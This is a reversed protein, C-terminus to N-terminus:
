FPPEAVGAAVVAKRSLKDDHKLNRRVEARNVVSILQNALSRAQHPTLYVQSGNELSCVVLQQDGEDKLVIDLKFGNNIEIM